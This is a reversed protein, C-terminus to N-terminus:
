RRCARKAAELCRTGGGGLARQLTACRAWVTGCLDFGVILVQPEEKSAHRARRGYRGSSCSINPATRAVYHGIGKCLLSLPAYDRQYEQRVFSRGLEISPGLQLPRIVAGIRLHILSWIPYM